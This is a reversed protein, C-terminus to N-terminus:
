VVWQVSCPIASVREGLNGGGGVYKPSQKYATRGISHATMFISLVAAFYQAAMIFLDTRKTYRWINRLNWQLTTQFEQGCVLNGRQSDCRKIFTFRTFTWREVGSKMRIQAVHREAPRFIGLYQRKSQRCDQRYILLSRKNTECKM